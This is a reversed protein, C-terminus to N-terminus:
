SETSNTKLFGAARPSKLARANGIVELNAINAAYHM